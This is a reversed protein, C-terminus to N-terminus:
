GFARRPDVSLQRVIAKPLSDFRASFVLNHKKSHKKSNARLAM